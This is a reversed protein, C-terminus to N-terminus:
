LIVVYDSLDISNKKITKNLVKIFNDSYINNIKM